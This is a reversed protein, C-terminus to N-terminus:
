RNNHLYMPLTAFRVNFKLCIRLTGYTICVYYKYCPHEHNAWHTHSCGQIQSEQAEPMCILYIGQVWTVVIVHTHNNSFSINHTVLSSSYIHIYQIGYDPFPENKFM